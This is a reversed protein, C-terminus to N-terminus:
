NNTKCFKYYYAYLLKNGYAKELSTLEFSRYLRALDLM